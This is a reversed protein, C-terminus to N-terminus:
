SSLRAEIGKAAGELFVSRVIDTRELLESAPGDFRIQGREMFYAHEVLSLAINVSQEVLVVATGKSNILRVMQMLEEVLAPALGLSLEDILLLTPRHILARSLSLMQQEGGSLTQAPQNRREALAPFAELSEEIGREVERRDRGHTYGFLRLNEVVSLTNFVSRGGPVQSIGLAVRREADIHTIDAGRFRVSGSTPLGLGSIVRLLTSKGAGNTGLLAVMEGEDASFSVDFLVQLQGYSFDIGRCALMPLERGSRIIKDVEEEEVVADIMQDLDQNITRAATRLMLGAIAGPITVCAIAVTIGFRSELGGLLLSGALGGAGALYILALSTAHPRMNPPVVSLLAVYFAPLLTVILSFAVGFFIAMLVFAPMMVGAFITVMTGVLAWAMATILRAPDRRFLREGIRGFLVLAVASAAAAYAGFLARGLPQLAWRQDLYFYFFTNFPLVMVGVMAFASYIRRQTPILHLRRVIEFFGLRTQEQIESRVDSVGGSRVLDRVRGTDWRGFGPDRLRLTLLSGGLCIVGLGVFVGRWTYDLVGTLLAIFLPAIVFGIRDASQYYSFARVRAQPPYSDMLLPRHLSQSSGTSFGDLTMVTVLGAFAVVFGVGITSVSWAFAAIVSILARRPRNQVYASMFMAALALALTEIAVIAAIAGISVGVGRAIDPSLIQFASLGFQDVITLVGLAFLPYWGAGSEKLTSRLPPPKEDQAGFIGLANRARARLSEREAEMAEFAEAVRETSAAKNETTM